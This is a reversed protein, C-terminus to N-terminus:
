FLYWTSPTTLMRKKEARQRVVIRKSPGNVLSIMSGSREFDLIYDYSIIYFRTLGTKLRRNRIKVFLAQFRIFVFQFRIFIIPIMYLKSSFIHLRYWLIKFDNFDSVYDGSILYENFDNTCEFLSHMAGRYKWDRNRCVHSVSVRFSQQIM